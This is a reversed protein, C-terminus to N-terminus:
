DNKDKLLDKSNREQETLQNRLKKKESILDDIQKGLSAERKKFM